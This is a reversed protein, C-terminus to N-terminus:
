LGLLFHLMWWRRRLPFHRSTPPPNNEFVSSCDACRGSKSAVRFGRAKVNRVENRLCERVEGSWEDGRNFMLIQYDHRVHGSTGHRGQHFVSRWREPTLM